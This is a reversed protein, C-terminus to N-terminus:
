LISKLVSTEAQCDTPKKQKLVWSTRFNQSFTKAMIVKTKAQGVLERTEGKSLVVLCINTYRYRNQDSQIKEM